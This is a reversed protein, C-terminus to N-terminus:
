GQLGAVETTDLPALIESSDGRYFSRGRYLMDAEPSLADERRPTVPEARSYIEGSARKLLIWQSAQSDVGFGTAWGCAFAGAVGVLLLLTVSFPLCRRSFGGSSNCADQKKLGDHGDDELDPSPGPSDSPLM